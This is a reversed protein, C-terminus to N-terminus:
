VTRSFPRCRPLSEPGSPMSLDGHVGGRSNGFPFSENSSHSITRTSGAICLHPQAEESEARQKLQQPTDESGGEAPGGAAKLGSLGDHRRM